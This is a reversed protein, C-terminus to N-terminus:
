GSLRGYTNRQNATMVFPMGNERVNQKASLRLVSLSHAPLDCCFVKAAGNCDMTVPSVREPTEFANVAMPNDATLVIKEYTDEVMCDLTIEVTEREDGMNLLKIYIMKEEIAAVSDILPVATQQAHHLLRGDVFALFGGPAAETRLTHWKGPTLMCPEPQALPRDGWICQDIVTSIGDQIRWQSNRVTRHNWVEGGHHEQTFIYAQEARNFVTLFVGQGEEAMVEVEFVDERGAPADFILFCNKSSDPKGPFPKMPPASPDVATLYGEGERVAMNQLFRKVEVPEGHCNANRFRLGPVTSGLGPLGSPVYRLKSTEVRSEVVYKGRNAGLLSLMHYSPIGYSRHNDFVILNPYWSTYEVHQLLPAYASLTVVDQNKEAGFLFMAECLAAHLTAVGNGQFAEYEGIFIKPGKRNYAEFRRRDEAFFEPTDYYHEDVVETVLGEEETHTNSIYIIDPYRHKLAQYFKRYHRSYEPGMNENGIEIYKLSFPAPHGMWARLEGWKTGVPATAYSVADMAEQLWADLEKGEAFVPGRVQCSIGANMVYMAELGLDECMQLFEHFGLGNTSRYHWMLYHSPREWVPGVTNSFRLMTEKTFGEVVCGGPFRLFRANAGALLEMLDKRLGHNKYTETPMLSTFGIYVEGGLPAEILLVADYDEETAELICDYRVFPGKEVMINRTDYRIGKSGALSVRLECPEETKLFAYFAYSEGRRCPVGCCGINWLRGHPEFHVHLSVRRKENLRVKANLEMRADQVYWAPVPTPPVRHAWETKGEGNHFPCSWGNENRIAETGDERVIAKCGEPVLSDEFSRNRLMEPYLGGDGGRNIEEFFLGYLDPATEFRIRETDVFVRNM